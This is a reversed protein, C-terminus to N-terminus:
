ITVTGMSSLEWPNVKVTYTVSGIVLPDDPRTSGPRTIKLEEIEYSSGAALKKDFTIPYYLTEGAFEVEVVLRTFRMSWTTSQSDTAVPNPCCYMRKEQTYSASKAISVPTFRGGLLATQGDKLEFQNLFDGAVPTYTSGLNTKGVANVLYIGKVKLDQGAYQPIDIGNTIKSIVVRSVLRTVDITVRENASVTKKAEGFMVFGDETSNAELPSVKAKLAALNTVDVIDASNVVAAITKEGLAVNISVESSNSRAYSELKTGNANFVYVQLSKVTAETDTLSSAAKTALPPLRVTIEATEGMQEHNTQIVDKNCSTLCAVAAAAALFFYSKM